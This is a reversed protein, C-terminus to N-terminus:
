TAAIIRDAVLKQLRWLNRDHVGLRELEQVTHMLYEAGSGWHGVAKALIAAVQDPL